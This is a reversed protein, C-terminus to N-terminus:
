DTTKVPLVTRVDQSSRDVVSAVVAIPQSAVAFLDTTQPPLCVTAAAGSPELDIYPPWASRRPTVCRTRPM